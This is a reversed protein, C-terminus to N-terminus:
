VPAHSAFENWSSTKARSAVFVSSEHYLTELMFYARPSLATVVSESPDMRTM